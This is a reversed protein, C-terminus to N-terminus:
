RFDQFQLDGPGGGVKSEALRGGAESQTPSIYMKYQIFFNTIITIADGKNLCSM